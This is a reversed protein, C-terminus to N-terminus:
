SGYRCIRRASDERSSIRLLLSYDMIRYKTLLAVDKQHAAMLLDATSSDVGLDRIEELFNMDKGVGEHSKARRNRTSGKLDYTRHIQAGGGVARMVIFLRAKGDIAISYFGLFRALM